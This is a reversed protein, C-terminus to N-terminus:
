PTFSKTKPVVIDHIKCFWSFLNTLIWVALVMDQSYLKKVFAWCVIKNACIIKLMKKTNILLESRGDHYIDILLIGDM